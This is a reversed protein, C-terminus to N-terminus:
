FTFDTNHVTPVAEQLILLRSLETQLAELDFTPCDLSLTEIEPLLLYLERRGM